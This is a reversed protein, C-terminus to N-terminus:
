HESPSPCHRPLPHRRRGIDVETSGHTPPTDTMTEQQVGHGKAQTELLGFRAELRRRCALSGPDTSPDDASQPRGVLKQVQFATYDNFFTQYKFKPISM